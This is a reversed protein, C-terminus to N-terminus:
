RRVAKEADVLSISASLRDAPATDVRAVIPTVKEQVKLFGGAKLVVMEGDNVGEVIEVLGDQQSGIAVRRVDVVDDKVVYVSHNSGASRVATGPLLINTRKSANVTGRAFAGAVIGDAEDLAIRVTGSRTKPDLQAASLRVSGTVPQDRGPLSVTARMGERLRVFSTETVEAVFELAGDEAILFLPEASSSTMAGLRAHRALIRGAAPARLDSREITLEIERRERLVLEQEAEALALSQRALQLEAAARAHANEDEEVIRESVVGKPQLARSRGLKKRADAENVLAVEVRSSEVAVAAKARLLNVANKDLLMDADTTDLRALSQGKEVNQGAEVLIQRIERGLVEPHVQVEERAAVTGIVPIRETIAGQRAIFVTVPMREEAAGATALVGWAM